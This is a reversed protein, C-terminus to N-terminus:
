VATVLLRATRNNMERPTATRCLPRLLRCRPPLRWQVTGAKSHDRNNRGRKSHELTSSSGASGDGGGHVVDNSSLPAASPSPGRQKARGSRHGPAPQPRAAPASGAPHTLPLECLSSSAEPENAVKAERMIRETVDIVCMSPSELPADIGAYYEMTAGSYHKSGVAGAKLFQFSSSEGRSPLPNSFKTTRHRAVAMLTPTKM